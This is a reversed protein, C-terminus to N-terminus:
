TKPYRKSYLQNHWDCWGGFYKGFSRNIPEYEGFLNPRVVLINDGKSNKVFAAYENLKKEEWPNSSNIIVNKHIDLVDDANDLHKKIFKICKNIKENYGECSLSLFEDDKNVPFLEGKDNNYIVKGM